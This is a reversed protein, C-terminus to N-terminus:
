DSIDITQKLNNVLDFSKLNKSAILALNDQSILDLLRYRGLAFSKGLTENGELHHSTSLTIIPEVQFHIYNEYKKPELAKDFSKKGCTAQVLFIINNRLDDNFELWAVFDTGEDQYNRPNINKEINVDITILDLEKAFNIIKDKASGSYSNVDDNKTSMSKVTIKDKFLNQLAYYTILEFGSTLNSQCANILNLNSCTLLALYILQKQSLNKKLNIVDDEIEFPYYEKYLNIREDLCLVINELIEENEEDKKSVGRTSNERSSPVDEDEKEEEELHEDEDQLTLDNQFLKISIDSKTTEYKNCYMYFEIYDASKNINFHNTPTNDLIKNKIIDIDICDPM